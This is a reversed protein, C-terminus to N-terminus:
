ASSPMRSESVHSSNLRTSKRDGPLEIEYDVSQLRRTANARQSAELLLDIVEKPAQMDRVNSGIMKAPPISLQWYPSPPKFDLFTGDVTYRFTADPVAELLAKLQAQSRRLEEEANKLKTVEFGTGLIAPRGEYIIREGSISLWREEGMRTVIKIEYSLPAPEGRLRKTM